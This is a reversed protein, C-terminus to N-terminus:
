IRCVAAAREEGDRRRIFLYILASAVDMLMRAVPPLVSGFQLEALFLRFHKKQIQMQTKLLRLPVCGCIGSGTKPHPGKQMEDQTVSEGRMEVPRRSVLSHLLKESLPKWDLCVQNTRRVAPIDPGVTM